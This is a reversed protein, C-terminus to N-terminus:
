GEEQVQLVGTTPRVKTLRLPVSADWVVEGAAIQLAMMVANRLARGEITPLNVRNGANDTLNRLGLALQEELHRINAEHAVLM